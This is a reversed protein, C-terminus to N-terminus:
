QSGQQIWFNQSVNEKPRVQPNWVELVVDDFWATAKWRTNDTDVIIAVASIMEPPAGFAQEYDRVFNREESVWDGSRKNGSELVVTAVSKAYPNKYVSGVPEKAAWVYHIARTKWSVLHTEFILCVRAAYDDGVKKREQKNGTLSRDVKWQWKIKGVKFSHVHLMSWLVTASEKSDLRLVTDNKDQVVQYPASKKSADFGFQQQPPKPFISREIWHKQWGEEFDGLLRIAVGQGFVSQTLLVILLFACILCIKGITSVRLREM